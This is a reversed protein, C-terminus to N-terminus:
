KDERAFNSRGKEETSVLGGLGFEGVEKDDRTEGVIIADWDGMVVLDDNGKEEHIM